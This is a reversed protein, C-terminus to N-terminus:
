IDLTLIIFLSTLSDDRAQRGRTALAEALPAPIGYQPLLLIIPNRSLSSIVFFNEIKTM